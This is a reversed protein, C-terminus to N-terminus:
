WWGQALWANYAGQWGGYRGQAYGACWRLQTVPNTLYDPGASAMKSAPLSQCLGYAGSGANQAGPRWRSEKDVIFDVYVHDSAAIGAATMLSVKDGSVTVNSSLTALKTGVVVVENQPAQVVVTQLVRRSVEVGNEEIIEYVVAQQGNVGATRTERNGTELNSDTITEREFPIEETVAETKIGARNVSVFMNTTIPSDINSPQVTEEAQLDINREILLEAVTDATTRTQQIVGYVNLQIPVSRDIVLQEGLVLQESLSEPTVDQDRTTLEIKDEPLLEIGAQQVIVEPVREASLITTSRDGDIVEVPRARYVNVQTNQELIPTDVTPEVIDEPIIAVNLRELLEGVTDARTTVTRQEGDAYIDVIHTDRATGTTAGVAVFMSLGFFFLTVKFM